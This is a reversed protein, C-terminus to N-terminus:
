GAPPTRDSLKTSADDLNSEGLSLLGFRCLVVIM